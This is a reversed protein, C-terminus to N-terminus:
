TVSDQNAPTLHSATMSAKGCSARVILQPAFVTQSVPRETHERRTIFKEIALRGMDYVPQRLTTLGVYSCVDIDDFGVLAMDEPIQLGEEQLARMAGLAQADSAAFVATPRHKRKLLIKMSAYGAEEVFAHPRKDIGVVLSSEVKLGAEKLAKEYGQRRQIAPPPEPNATIHAIRTHGLKILHRTALYGGQVNDVSISDFAPHYADVLVVPQKRRKLHKIQAASLPASLLLIGEARGKQTARALQSEVDEPRRAAYVLLDYDTAALADQMGRMVGMYFDNTMVPIVASILHSNRRALSQASVHPQYGLEKAVELVRERTKDSVRTNGNFVRSVTAISVEAHKAIDYITAGM